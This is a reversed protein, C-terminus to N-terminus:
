NSIFEDIILNKNEQIIKNIVFKCLEIQNYKRLDVKVFSVNFKKCIEEIMILHKKIEWIPMIGKRNFIRKPEDNLIFCKKPKRFFHCLIYLTFKQLKPKKLNSWRVYRDYCYRDSLIIKNKCHNEYLVKVLNKFYKLEGLILSIQTKIFKPLIYSVKYKKIKNKKEEVRRIHVKWEGTHHFTYFKFPANKLANEINKCLTSKGVGEPGLISYLAPENYYSFYKLFNPLIIKKKNKIKVLSIRIIISEIFNNNINYILVNNTDESQVFFFSNPKCIKKLSKLFSSIKNENINENFYFGKQHKTFKNRKLVEIVKKM